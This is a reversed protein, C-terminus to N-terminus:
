NKTCSDAFSKYQISLRVLDLSFVASITAIVIKAVNATTAQGLDFSLAWILVLMCVAVVVLTFTSVRTAMFTALQKSWWTNEEVIQLLRENGAVCRSSYYEEPIKDQAAVLKREKESLWVLWDSRERASIPWGLSDRFELRALIVQHRSNHSDARWRLYSSLMALVLSAVALETALIGTSTVFVSILVLALQSVIYHWWGSEAKDGTIKRLLELNLRETSDSDTLLSSAMSCKGGGTFSTACTITKTRKSQRTQGLVRRTYSQCRKMKRQRLQAHVLTDRYRRSPRYDGVIPEAM